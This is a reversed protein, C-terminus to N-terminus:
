SLCLCLHTSSPTAKALTSSGSRRTPSWCASCTSRRTLDPSAVQAKALSETVWNVYQEKVKDYEAQAIFREREAQFLRVADLQQTESKLRDKHVAAVKGQAVQLGQAAREHKKAMAKESTTLDTVLAALQGILRDQWAALAQKDMIPLITFAKVLANWQADTDEWLQRTLLTMLEERTKTLAIQKTTATKFANTIDKVKEKFKHITELGLTIEGELDDNKHSRGMKDKIGSGVAGVKQPVPPLVKRIKEM